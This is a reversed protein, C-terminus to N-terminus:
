AAAGLLRLTNGAAVMQQESPTLGCAALAAQVREPVSTEVAIPWDTGVLVHDAGLLDVTSRVLVPHIGMTDIYVHRRLLAPTDKRLRTGDGFGGALLVGGLALTTVVVRLNPLDDFIGSELM